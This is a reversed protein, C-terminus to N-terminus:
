LDETDNVELLKKDQEEDNDGGIDGGSEVTHGGSLSNEFNTGADELPILAAQVLIVDGEKGLSPIGIMERKENVTLFDSKQCRQWIADRKPALAPIDDLVYDLFLDKDKSGKPFFWNNLESRIYQLHYFITTEWFAMRAEVQNSYTQDGPIGLLMPPMGYGVCIRRALERHGQLNDFEKPSWGYPKVETGKEGCLLLNKGAGEYGAYKNNLSREFNEFENETMNGIVTVIMGPRGENKLMRYNWQTAANYSDIEIATARTSSYGYWDNKPHFSKLHLIESEKTIPDVNFFRRRGEVSYEYKSIQGTVTDVHIKIRDPRHVYLEKPIGKNRGNDPCVKEIYSNGDLSYYSDATFILYNWSDSPNPHDILECLWHDTVEERKRNPLRRFLRWPVSATNKAIEDVCRFAIVNKLYSEDALKEFDEDPWIDGRSGNSLLISAARSSKKNRDDVNKKFLGFLFKKM